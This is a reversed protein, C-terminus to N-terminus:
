LPYPSPLQKLEEKAKLAAPHHPHKKQLQMFTKYAMTTNNQAHYALGMQLQAEPVRKDNPHKKLLQTCYQLSQSANNELLALQALLYYADAQHQRPYQKIFRQLAESANTYQKAKILHNVAQWAKQSAQEQLSSTAVNVTNSTKSGGWNFIPKRPSALKKIHTDKTNEIKEKAIDEAAQLAQRLSQITHQLDEAEVSAPPTDYLDIVPPLDHGYTKELLGGILLWTILFLM